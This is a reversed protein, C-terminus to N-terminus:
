PRKELTITITKSSSEFSVGAGFAEAIFRLPVMTKGGVIQPPPKVNTQSGNIVAKDSGITLIIIKEWLTITIEKKVSNYDINAGFADGVSRLPVFTSGKIVMPPPNVPKEKGFVYMKGDGIKMIVITKFVNVVEKKVETKNGSKDTAIITITAKSPAPSLKIDAKFQDQTVTAPKGNITISAGKETTGTVTIMEANLQEPIDNVKLEPPIKDGIVFAKVPMNLTGSGWNFIINGEIPKQVDAVTTDIKIKFIGENRPDIEQSNPDIILWGDNTTCKVVFRLSSVNSIVITREPYTGGQVEGFDISERSFQLGKCTVKVTISDSGGPWEVLLKSEKKAGATINATVLALSVTKTSSPVVELSTDGVVKFWDADTKLTLSTPKFSLNKFRIQAEKEENEAVTGFDVMKDFTPPIKEVIDFEMSGIINSYSATVKCHGTSLAEFVGYQDVKGVDSPEVEWSLRFGMIKEGKKDTMETQLQVKQGLEINSTPYYVKISIPESDPDETLCNLQRDSNLTFVLGNSVIPTHLCEAGLNFKSITKGDYSSLLHLYGDMSTVFLMEKCYVPSSLIKGSTSANWKDEGTKADCAYVKGDKSGFFVTDNTIAISSNVRAKTEKSWIKEGTKADLCYVKGKTSDESFAGLATSIYVMENSYSPYADLNGDLTASWKVKGTAIDLGRLISSFLAGVFVMKGSAAPSMMVPGSLKFDWIRRGTESDLAYCNSDAAGFIVKNGVLIPKPHFMVLGEKNFKTNFSWRELGSNSDLCKLGDHYGVYVMKGNTAVSTDSVGDIKTTWIKRGYSQSYCTIDGKSIESECIYLKDDATCMSTMNVTDKELKINWKSLMASSKPGCQAPMNLSHSANGGYMSWGQCNPNNSTNRVSASAYIKVKRTAFSLTFDGKLIEGSRCKEPVLSFTVTAEGKPRVNIENRDVTFWGGRIDSIRFSMEAESTNTLKAELKENSAPEIEAFDIESPELVSEAYCRLTGDYDGFIVKGNAIAPSNTSVTKIKENYIISGDKLNIVSFNEWGYFLYVKGNSISPSAFSGIEAEIEWVKKGELTVCHIKSRGRQNEKLKEEDYTVFVISNGSIAPTSMIPLNVTYKWKVEGNKRDLCYLNDDYSGVYVSREDAVACSYLNQSSTIKTKWAIKGKEEEIAYVMGNRCTFYIMDSYATITGSDIPAPLIQSWLRRGTTIELKFLEVTLKYTVVCFFISGNHPTASTIVPGDTNFSWKVKGTKADLCYMFQERIPKEDREGAHCVTGIFINSDYYTPSGYPLGWGNLKNEWVKEGTEADLCILLSKNNSRERARWSCSSFFLKGEAVIPSAMIPPEVSYQWIQKINNGQPGSDTTGTMSNNGHEIPWDTTLAFTKGYPFSVNSVAIMLIIVLINVKKM